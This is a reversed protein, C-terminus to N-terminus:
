DEGNILVVPDGTVRNEDVACTFKVEYGEKVKAGSQIEGFDFTVGKIASYTLTYYKPGACAAAALGLCALCLVSLITVIFKRM